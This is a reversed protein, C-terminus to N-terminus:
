SLRNLLFETHRCLAAIEDVINQVETAQTFGPAYRYRYTEAYVHKVLELGNEGLFLAKESSIIKGKEILVAEVFSDALDSLEDYFTGLAQHQAYSETNWHHVHAATVGHLLCMAYDSIIDAPKENISFKM